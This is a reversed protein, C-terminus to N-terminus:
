WFEAEGSPASSIRGGSLRARLDSLKLGDFVQASAEGLDDGASLRALLGAVDALRQTLEDLRQLREALDRRVDHGLAEGLADQCDEAIAVAEALEDALRAALDGVAVAERQHGVEISIVQSNM